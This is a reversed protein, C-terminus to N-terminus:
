KGKKPLRYPKDPLLRRCLLGELHPLFVMDRLPYGAALASAIRAM